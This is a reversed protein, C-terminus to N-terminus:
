RWMRAVFPRAIMGGVFVALAGGVMDSDGAALGIFVAFVFGITLWLLIFRNVEHEMTAGTM